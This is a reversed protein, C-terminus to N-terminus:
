FGTKPLEIQKKQSNNDVEIRIVSGHTKIEVELADTRKEYYAPAQVEEIRYRGYLLDKTIAMGKDDTTVTDVLEGKDNYITFTCGQLASGAKLGTYDNDEKSVKHIEIKGRIRENEFSVETTKGFALKVIQVNNPDCYYGEPVAIEEIKIEKEQLMSLQQEADIVIEGKEDTTFEGLVTGTEKESIRFTVGALAINHNEKDVKKIKLMAPKREIEFQFEQQAQHIPNLTLLVNQLGPAATGWLVATEKEQIALGLQITSNQVVYSRPVLVKIESHGVVEEIPQHNRDTITIDEKGKKDIKISQINDSAKVRYEMRYYRSDQTDVEAEKVPELVVSPEEITGMQTGQQYIRTIAEVVRQYEPRLPTIAGLNLHSCYVWVAFQTAFMAEHENQLGLEQVSRYPYGRSLIHRVIENTALETTGVDYGGEVTEAGPMGLDVCYAVQRQQKEDVYFYETNLQPREEYSIYKEAEINAHIHYKDLWDKERAFVSFSNMVMVLLMMIMMRTKKKSM